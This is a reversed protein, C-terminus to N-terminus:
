SNETNRMRKKSFIQNKVVTACMRLDAMNIILLLLIAMISCIIENCGLTILIAQLNVTAVNFFFKIIDIQIDFFKRSDIIRVFCLILYSVFFAACAALAGMTKILAFTVILNVAAAIVTTVSGRLSKKLAQYIAEYFTSFAFLVAGGLILPVYRWSGYFEAGVYYKMFWKLILLIFAQGFFMILSYTKFINKFFSKDNDNEYEKISSATWAASFISTIVSLLNPIKSAATFLGLEGSSCFVQIMVRNSSNLVWWSLNNAILPASFCVMQGLLRVDIKEEIISHFGKTAFMLFLVALIHAGINALLYGKVDLKLFVLFIINAVALFLTNIVGTLAYTKNKELSRAYAYLVTSFMNAVVTVYIYWRWESLPAYMNALPVLSLSLLSGVLLVLFANKFVTASHYKGSLIFRLVADQIVISFIPVALYSVTTILDAIGYQAATLINTYLPVLFFSILKSGFSGIAFIVINSILARYKQKM